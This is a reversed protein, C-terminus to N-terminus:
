QESNTSKILEGIAEILISLELGDESKKPEPAPWNPLSNLLEIPGQSFNNIRLKGFELYALEGSGAIETKYVKSSVKPDIQNLTFVTGRDSSAPPSFWIGKQELAHTLLVERGKSTGLYSIKLNENAQKIFDEFKRGFNLNFSYNFSGTNIDRIIEIKPLPYAGGSIFSINKGSSTFIRSGNPSVQYSFFPKENQQFHLVVKEKKKDVGIQFNLVQKENSHLWAGEILFAEADKQWHEYLKELQELFLAKRSEGFETGDSLSRATEIWTDSSNPNSDCLTKLLSISSEQNGRLLHAFATYVQYKPSTSLDNPLNSLYTLSLDAKPSVGFLASQITSELFLKSKKEENTLRNTFYKICFEAEPHSIQRLRTIKEMPANEARCISVLSGIGKNKEETVDLAKELSELLKFNDSMKVILYTRLLLSPDAMLEPGHIRALLVIADAFSRAFEKHSLDAEAIKVKLLQNLRPSGKDFSSIFHLSPLTGLYKFLLLDTGRVVSKLNEAAKGMMILDLAVRPAEKSDPNENLFNHALELYGSLDGGEIFDEYFPIRGQAQALASIIGFYFLLFLSIASKIM